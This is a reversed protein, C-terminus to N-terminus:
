LLSADVIILHVPTEVSLGAWACQLITHWAYLQFVLSCPSAIVGFWRFVQVSGGGESIPGEPSQASWPVSVAELHNSPGTSAQDEAQPSQRRSQQEEGLGAFPASFAEQIM